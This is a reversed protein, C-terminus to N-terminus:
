KGQVPTQRDLLFEIPGLRLAMMGRFDPSFIACVSLTLVVTCCSVLALTPFRKSSSEQRNHSTIVPQDSNSQASASKTTKM